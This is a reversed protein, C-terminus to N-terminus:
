SITYRQIISDLEEELEKQTRFGQVQPFLEPIISFFTKLLHPDFHSGSGERLIMLSKELSFPKKYPRESTLADFVDVIAFIRANVPIDEGSLGAMYGSGDYKEHHYRIVDDAGELWAYPKVIDVGHQVHTKMIEFEEDTLKAPKLLITDSIGIKGVDHLFAGRILNGIQARPLGSAEALRIAYIVVRYNHSGTDSDRKAVASGLVNLIGINAKALHCTAKLLRKNLHIIVPYLILSTLLAVVTVQLISFGIGIAINRIERDPVRYVGEFFGLLRNNSEDQVPVVIKLYLSFHSFVKLYDVKEGFLFNHQKQEIKARVEEPLNYSEEFLKKRKADYFELIAFHGVPLDEKIVSRIRDIIEQTPDREYEVFLPTYGRSEQVALNVVSQDTQELEILGVILSFILALVAGTLLLKRLIDKKIPQIM